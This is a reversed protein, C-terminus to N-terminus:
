AQASKVVSGISFFRSTVVVTLRVSAVDHHRVEHEPTNFVSAIVVRNKLM